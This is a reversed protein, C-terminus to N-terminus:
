VDGNVVAHRYVSAMAKDNDEVILILNAAVFPDARM